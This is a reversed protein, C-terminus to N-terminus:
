KEPAVTDVPVAKPVEEIAGKDKNLLALIDETIDLEEKGYLINSAETDGYIYTYGNNKGYDKIFDKVKNVISDIAAGSKKQIEQVRAQQERQLSQQKFRLANAREEYNVKSLSKSTKEFEQVEKQFAVAKEELEKRLADNKGTWVAEADKMEQFGSVVKASNVYATKQQDCSQLTVVAIAIWLLNKMKKLKILKIQEESRSGYNNCNLIAVKM